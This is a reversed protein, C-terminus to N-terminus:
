RRGISSSKLKVQYEEKEVELENELLSAYYIGYGLSSYRDKRAMGVEVLSIFRGQTIKKELGISENVLMTTSVFPQLREAEEEVTLTPSSKKNQTKYLEALAINPDVLLSLHGKELQSKVKMAMLHNVEASPNIAFIVLSKMDDENLLMREEYQEKNFSGLAPYELSTENDYSVKALSDYVSVGNGNVDMVIYDADFDYFYRKILMAQIDSHLGHIAITNSLQIDYYAGSKSPLLRLFSIITNDNQAGAMISVDISIIRIEDSNNKPFEKNRYEGYNQVDDYLKTINRPIYANYLRRNKEFDDMKLLSGATEGFFQCQYEMGFSVRDFNAESMTLKIQTPNIIKEKIGLQYPIATIFEDNEGNLMKDVSQEAFEYVWHNKYWASSMFVIQNDLEKYNKYKPNSLFGPQRTYTLFPKLVSDYITKKMLRHEDVVLLSCREGRANDNATIATIKSGNQFYMATEKSGTVFRLTERKINPHNNYLESQIKTIIIKEAQGRTGSALTVLTGPYLICKVISVVAILWSKGLGRSALFTFMPYKFILFILIKQFTKLRLGLYDEAFRHPNERYFSTWDKVKKTMKSDLM